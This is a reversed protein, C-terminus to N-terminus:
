RPRSPLTSSIATPEAEFTPKGSNCRRRLVSRSAPKRQMWVCGPPSARREMTSSCASRSNRNSAIHAMPTPSCYQVPMVAAKKPSTSYPRSEM